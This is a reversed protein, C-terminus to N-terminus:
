ILELTDINVFTRLQVLMPFSVAGMYGHPVGVVNGIKVDNLYKKIEKLTGGVCM